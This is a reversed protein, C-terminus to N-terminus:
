VVGVVRLTVSLYRNATIDKRVGPVSGNQVGLSESPLNAPSSGVEMNNVWFVVYLFASLLLSDQQLARPLVEGTQTESGVECLASLWSQAGLAGLYKPSSRDCGGDRQRQTQKTKASTFLCVLDM